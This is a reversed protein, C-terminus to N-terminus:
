GEPPAFPCDSCDHMLLLLTDKEFKIHGRFFTNRTSAFTGFSSDAYFILPPIFSSSVLKSLTLKNSSVTFPTTHFEGHFNGCCTIAEIQDCDISHEESLMLAAIPFQNLRPQPLSLYNNLEMDRTGDVGLMKVKVKMSSAPVDGIADNIRYRLSAPSTFGPM